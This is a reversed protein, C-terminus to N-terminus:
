PLSELNEKISFRGSRKKISSRGPRKKISSRGLRSKISSRGLIKEEYFVKWPEERRLLGQM